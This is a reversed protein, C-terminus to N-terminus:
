LVALLAVTRGHAGVGDIRRSHAGACPTAFFSYDYVLIIRQAGGAVASEPGLFETSRAGGDDMMAKSIGGDM